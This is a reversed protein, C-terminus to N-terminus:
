VSIDGLWDTKKKSKSAKSNLPAQSIQLSNILAVKAVELQTRTRVRLRNYNMTTIVRLTLTKSSMSFNM